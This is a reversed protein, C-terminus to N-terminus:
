QPMATPNGHACYSSLQAKGAATTTNAAATTRYRTRNRFGRGSALYPARPGADRDPKMPGPGTRRALDHLHQRGPRGVTRERRDRRWEVFGITCGKKVVRGTARLRANWVPRMFSIKLGLTSFTEGEDLTCAYTIGMAADAIDCLIGGHLTGMPNAHRRSAELEVVAEGPQASILKFGILTAAPAPPLEGRLIKQIRDFM